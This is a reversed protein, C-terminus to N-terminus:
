LQFPPVESRALKKSTGMTTKQETKGHLESKIQDQKAHIGFQTRFLTETLCLTKLQTKSNQNATPLSSTREEKISNLKSNLSLLFCFLQNTGPKKRQLLSVSIPYSSATLRRAIYMRLNPYCRISKLHHKQHLSPYIGGIGLSHPRNVEVSGCFYFVTQASSSTQYESPSHNWTLAPECEKGGCFSISPTQSQIWSILSFQQFSNINDQSCWKALKEYAQPPSTPNDNDLPSCPQYVSPQLPISRQAQAAWANFAVCNTSNIVLHGNAVLIGCM